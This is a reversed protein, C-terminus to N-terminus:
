GPRAHVSTQSVSGIRITRRFTVTWTLDGSTCLMPEEEPTLAPVTFRLTGEGARPVISGAVHVAMSSSADDFSFRRDADLPLGDGFGYNFYWTTTSGDDCQLDTGFEFEVISMVGDLRTLLIHSRIGQSTEGRYVRVRHGAAAAPAALSLLLALALLAAPSSGRRM